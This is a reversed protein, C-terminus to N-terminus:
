GVSIASMLYLSTFVGIIISKRYNYIYNFCGACCSTPYEQQFYYYGTSQFDSYNSIGCCEFKKHIADFTNTTIPRSFQGYSKLSQLAHAAVVESTSQQKLISLVENVYCIYSMTGAAFSLMSISTFILCLNLIAESSKHFFISVGLFLCSILGYICLSIEFALSNAWKCM